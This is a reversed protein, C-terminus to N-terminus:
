TRFINHGFDTEGRASGPAFGRVADRILDTTVALPPGTILPPARRDPPRPPHKVKMQAITSDNVPALGESSALCRAAGRVDGEQLKFSARRIVRDEESGQKRSSSLRGIDLQAAAVLPTKGLQKIV